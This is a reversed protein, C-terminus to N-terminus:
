KDYVRLVLFRTSERRVIFVVEVVVDAIRGSRARRQRRSRTGVPIELLRRRQQSHGMHLVIM